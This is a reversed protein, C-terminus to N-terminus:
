QTTTGIIEARVSINLRMKFWIISEMKKFEEFSIKGDGDIDAFRIVADIQEDNMPESGWAESDLMQRFEDATIFGDGDIDLSKFEKELKELEEVHM